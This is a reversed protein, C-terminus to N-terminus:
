PASRDLCLSSGRHFDHGWTRFGSTDVHIKTSAYFGLGFQRAAGERRWFGCLRRTTISDAVFEIDVANNAVHRSRRSGGECGNFAEDRWASVVRAERILGASGLDRVLSLTPVIGDWQARPPVAFEVGGCRRWRRGRRLLQPMPVVDAVGAAALHSRYQAVARDHGAALWRDFADPEPAPRHCSTAIVGAAVAAALKWWRPRGV